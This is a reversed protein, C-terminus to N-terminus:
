TSTGGYPWPWFRSIIGPAAEPATEVVPPRPATEEIRWGLPDRVRVLHAMRECEHRARILHDRVSAAQGETIEGDKVAHDLGAITNSIRMSTQRFYTM